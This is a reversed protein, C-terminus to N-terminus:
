IISIHIFTRVICMKAFGTVNVISSRISRVSNKCGPHKQKANVM